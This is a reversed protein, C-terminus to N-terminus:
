KCSKYAAKREECPGGFVWLPQAAEYPFMLDKLDTPTLVFLAKFALVLGTGQITGQRLSPPLTSPNLSVGTLM